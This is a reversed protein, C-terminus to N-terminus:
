LRTGVFPDARLERELYTLVRDGFFEGENSRRKFEAFKDKCLGGGRSSEYGAFRHRHPPIASAVSKFDM